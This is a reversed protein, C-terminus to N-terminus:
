IKFGVYGIALAWSCRFRAVHVHDLGPMRMLRAPRRSTSQTRMYLRQDHASAVSSAGVGVQGGRGGGSALRCGGIDACTLGAVVTSIRDVRISPTCV